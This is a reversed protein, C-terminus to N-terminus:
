VQHADKATWFMSIDSALEALLAYLILVAMVVATYTM